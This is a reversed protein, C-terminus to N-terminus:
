MQTSSSSASIHKGGKNELKSHILARAIIFIQSFHHGNIEKETHVKLLKHDFTRCFLCHGFVPEVSVCESLSLFLGECM